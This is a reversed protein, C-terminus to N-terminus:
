ESYDDYDDDEEIIGLDDGYDDEFDDDDDLDDDDLVMDADGINDETLTDTIGDGEEM